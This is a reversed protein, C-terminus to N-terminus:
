PIPTTLPSQNITPTPLPSSPTRTPVISIPPHTGSATPQPTGTVTSTPTSPVPTPTLISRTQSATLSLGLAKAYAALDMQGSIRIRDWLLSDALTHTVGTQTTVAAWFNNAQLFRLAAADYKGSPYALFIVPKGTHGEISQRGGIINFVFWDFSRGRMDLHQRGHLQMDMGANSMETIMDWTLYPAAGDDAPGTLIFFTGTMGYKKLLPYANTYNDVYGDDFTLIIPKAPLATGIALYNYLDRLSITTYGNDALLKLQAEFMEPPVSLGYRIRDQASPSASIYHYMLIPVNARRVVGDPQPPQLPEPPVIDTPVIETPTATASPRPTATRTPTRTITATPTSTPSATATATFTPALTNTATPPVVPAAAVTNCASLLLASLGLLMLSIGARPPLNRM